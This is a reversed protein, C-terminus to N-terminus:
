CSPDPDGKADSGTHSAAGEAVACYPCCLTKLAASLGSRQSWKLFTTTFLSGAMGLVKVHSLLM